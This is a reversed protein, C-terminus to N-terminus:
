TRSNALDVLDQSVWARVVKWEGDRIALRVRLPQDDAAQGPCRVTLIFSSPGDFFAHQVGMFPLAFGTQKEDPALARMMAALHQPTVERDVVSGAIGSVFSAGFPPLTSSALRTTPGADTTHFDGSVIGESIDTKLGTRVSDWDILAALKGPDGRELADALQWLTVYPMAVYAALIAVIATVVSRKGTMAVVEISGGVEQNV